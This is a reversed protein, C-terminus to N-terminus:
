RRSDVRAELATLRADLEHVEIAKVHAEILKGVAAAEDPTVEGEAVLHLVEASAAMASAANTIAPLGPLEVPAGKRLPDLRDLLLRLAQVDGAQARAYLQAYLNPLADPPLLEAARTRKNRSGPQRGPGHIYRGSPDRTGQSVV